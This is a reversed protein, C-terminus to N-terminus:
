VNSAEKIKSLGLETIVCVDGFQEIFKNRILFDVTQKPAKEIPRGGALMMWKQSLRGWQLGNGDRTARLVNTQADSLIAM